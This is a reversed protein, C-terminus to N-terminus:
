DLWPTTQTWSSLHNGDGSALDQWTHVHIMSIPGPTPTASPSPTPSPRPTPTTTPSSSPRPTPTTTPSPSPHPTPSPAGSPNPTPTPRKQPIFVPQVSSSGGGGGCGGVLFVVSLAAIASALRILGLSSRLQACRSGRLRLGGGRRTTVGIM